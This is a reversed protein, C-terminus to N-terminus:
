ETVFALFAIYIVRSLTFCSFVVDQETVGVPFLAIIVLRIEPQM